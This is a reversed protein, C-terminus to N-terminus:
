WVFEGHLIMRFINIDYWMRAYFYTLILLGAMFMLLLGLYKGALSHGARVFKRSIHDLWKQLRIFLPYFIITIIGMSILTFRVPKLEWKYSILKDTIVTTLLNASLITLTTVAFKFLGRYM